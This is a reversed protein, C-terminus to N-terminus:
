SAAKPKIKYIWFGRHQYVLEFENLLLPNSESFPLLKALLTNSSSKDTLYHIRVANGIPEVAYAGNFKAEDMWQRVAKMVGHSQGAAPFDRYAIGIRGPNATAAKWIDSLHVAIFANGDPVLARLTEAGAAEELLLADIYRSFLEEDPKAAGKGWFAREGSLVRDSSGMWAAPFLLGRAQPDDLPARRQAILRVKRSFDWWSLLTADPPVNDRIAALVKSVEKVSLDSFLVPETVFNQWDLAVARQDPGTAVLAAAVPGRVGPTRWELRRIAAATRADETLGLDAYSSPEADVSVRDYPAPEPLLHSNIALALILAGFSALAVGVFPSLRRNAPASPAEPKTNSGALALDSRTTM